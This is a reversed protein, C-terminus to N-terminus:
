ARVEEFRVFGVYTVTGIDHLLMGAEDDRTHQLELRKSDIELPGERALRSLDVIFQDTQYGKKESAMRGAIRRIPVSAGDELKLRQLVGLYHTRLKKLFYGGDLPRAFIREHEEAVKEVVAGIDAPFEGLKRESNSLVAIGGRDITLEFFGREFTYTPFRSTMDLPLGAEQCAQELRNPFWVRLKNAQDKAVSRLKEIDQFSLSGAECQERIFQDHKEVLHLAHLFWQRSVYKELETVIKRFRKLSKLANELEEQRKYAGYSLANVARISDESLPTQKLM